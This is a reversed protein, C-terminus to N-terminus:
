TDSTAHPDLDPGVHVIPGEDLLAAPEDRSAPLRIRVRLGGMPSPEADITGGMAVTMGRAVSLGIGVGRTGDGSRRGRRFTDFIRAEDGPRVGQGADEVFLDVAPSGATPGLTTEDDTALTASIRIAVGPGGHQAANELVNGLAHDFFTADVIVPPLDPPLAMEIPHGDLASRQRIMAGEVLEALDHLEPRARLEGAEIRGLDLLDRVTESLHAAQSDVQSAASRVTDTSPELDPDMLGGALARITALPTRLDHSVSDVLASKLADSRRAVEASTAEEALRERRVALGLQDAASALLRTAGRDPAGSRRDRVVWISGVRQGASGIAVRYTELDDAPQSVSTASHTHVWDGADSEATRHLQSVLRPVQRPLDHGSDALVREQQSTPGVGIWIREAGTAHRLPEVMEVAAARVSTATALSRSIGFAVEAEAARAEAEGAREAQLAILRGIVISVVLFLLLSLWEQPDAVTFTFRPETFGFDYILFAAISTAVAPVTGFRDAMLVVALLYVMSADAVAFWAELGAAIATAVALSGLAALIVVM